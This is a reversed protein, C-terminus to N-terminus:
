ESGHEAPAATAALAPAIALARRAGTFRRSWYPLSLSEIRVQAGTRPAHIFRGDGVYIGVHSYTRRLTNFFVLDGPQLEGRAVARLARYRAQDDASRPLEVGLTQGYLHRTFGSCDFGTALSQGGSRYPQDLFNMAAIVVDSGRERSVTAAVDGPAAAHAADPRADGRGTPGDGPGTACGAFLACAVLIFGHRALARTRESTGRTRESIGRTRESMGCTRESM